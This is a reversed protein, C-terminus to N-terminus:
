RRILYYAGALYALTTPELTYGAVFSPLVGFPRLATACFVVALGFFGFSVLYGAVQNLLGVIQAIIQNLNVNM